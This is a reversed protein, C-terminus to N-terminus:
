RTLLSPMTDGTMTTEPVGETVVHRLQVASSRSAASAFHAPHYSALVATSWAASLISSSAKSRMTEASATSWVAFSAFTSPTVRSRTSPLTATGVAYRLLLENPSSASSSVNAPPATTCSPTLSTTFVTEMPPLSPSLRRYQVLAPKSAAPAARSMLFASRMAGSASQM